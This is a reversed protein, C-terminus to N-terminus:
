VHSIAPNGSNDKHSRRSQVYVLRLAEDNKYETTPVSRVTAVRHLASRPLDKALNDNEVHLLRERNEFKDSYFTM